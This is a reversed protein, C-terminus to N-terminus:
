YNMGELERSQCELLQSAHVLLWLPFSASENSMVEMSQSTPYLSILIFPFSRGQQEVKFAPDVFAYCANFMFSVQSSCFDWSLSTTDKFLSSTTIVYCSLSCTIHHVLIWTILMSWVISCSLFTDIFLCRIYKRRLLMCLSSYAQMVTDTM